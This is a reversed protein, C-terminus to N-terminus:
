VTLVDTFLVFYKLHIFKHFFINHTKLVKIYIYIYIYICSYIYM